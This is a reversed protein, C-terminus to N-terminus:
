AAFQHAFHQNNQATEFITRDCITKSAIPHMSTNMPVTEYIKQNAQFLFRDFFSEGFGNLNVIYVGNFCMMLVSFGSSIVVLLVM